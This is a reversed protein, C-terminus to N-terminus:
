PAPRDSASEARLKACIRADVEEFTLLRGAEMDAIGERIAARDDERESQIDCDTIEM